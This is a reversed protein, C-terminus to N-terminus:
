WRTSSAWAAPAPIRGAAARGDRVRATAVVPGRAREDGGRFQVAHRSLRPACGVRQSHECMRPPSAGARRARQRGVYGCNCVHDGLGPQNPKIFYTGVMAGVADCAVFTATPCIGDLSQPNRGRHYGARLQLHRRRRLHRALLRGYPPGTPKASRDRITRCRCWDVSAVDSEAPARVVGRRWKPEARGAVANAAEAAADDDKRLMEGALALYALAGRSDKDHQLVPKGFSPAEALRVNRPVITRFVKDGFLSILQSSVENSLNNRPDFMTRLIGEIELNPSVSAKIQEITGVLATLGELAYYECQMPILVSQAAVLANLTLMNLAPPCDILIVEYQDQVPKLANRLRLERGAMTTLLRVEAATLDQNSPMLSLGPTSELPIIVSAADAEGLLVDGTGRKIQSKEVGCGMTANGQPDIDILLVRRRTAAFSAALNVATTTKGVGGKQNAVAIIRKM